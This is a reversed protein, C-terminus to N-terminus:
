TGAPAIAFSDPVWASMNQIGTHSYIEHADQKSWVEPAVRVLSQQGVGEM